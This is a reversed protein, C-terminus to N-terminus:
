EQLADAALDDDGLTRAAVNFLADQHLLVLTNFSDLDGRGASEILATEFALDLLDFERPQHTLAALGLVVEEGGVQPQDDGVGAAVGM